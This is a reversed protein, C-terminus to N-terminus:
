CFHTGPINGPLNPPPPSLLGDTCVASLRVVKFDPLRLKRSDEPGTRVQVPIATGKNTATGGDKYSGFANKGFPHKFALINRQLM